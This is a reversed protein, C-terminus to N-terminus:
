GIPCCKRKLWFRLDPHKTLPADYVTTDNRFGPATIIITDELQLQNLIFRGQVDTYKEAVPKGSRKNLVLANIIPKGEQDKVEGRLYLPQCGCLFLFMFYWVLLRM